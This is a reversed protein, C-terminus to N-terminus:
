LFCFLVVDVLSVRLPSALLPPWLSLAVSPHLHPPTSILLSVSSVVAGLFFDLPSRVCPSHFFFYFPYFYLLLRSAPTECLM